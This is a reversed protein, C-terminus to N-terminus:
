FRDLLCMSPAHLPSYIHVEGVASWTIDHVERIDQALSLAVVSDNMLNGVAKDVARSMHAYCCVCSENGDEGGVFRRNSHYLAWARDNLSWTFTLRHATFAFLGSDIAYLVDLGALTDEHSKLFVGYVHSHNHM